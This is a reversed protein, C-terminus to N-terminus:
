GQDPQVLVVGQGPGSVTTFANAFTSNCYQSANWQFTATGSNGPPIGGSTKLTGGLKYGEPTTQRFGIINNNGVNNVTITIDGSYSGNSCTQASATVALSLIIGLILLHQYKM